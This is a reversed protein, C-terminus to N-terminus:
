NKTIKEIIVQDDVRMNLIYTGAPLDVTEVNIQTQGATITQSNVRKILQGIADYFGGEIVSEREVNVNITLQTLFPNPYVELSVKQEDDGDFEVNIAIPESYSFSGDLDVLKLRYYYIGSEFIQDDKLDYYLRSFSTGAADVKGIAEYGGEFTESREVEFHSSNDETETTWFLDTVSEESNWEGYFDFLEVSLIIAATLGIDNTLDAQGPALGIFGTRGSIVTGVRPLTTMIDSDRTDDTGANQNVFRKNVFQPLNDPNLDYVIEVMYNGARLGTFLYNGNENTTTTAVLREIIGGPGGEM